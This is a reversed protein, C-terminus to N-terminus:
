SSSGKLRETKLKLDAVKLYELFAYNSIDALEQTIEEYLDLGRFREGRSEDQQNLRAYCITFFEQLRAKMQEDM